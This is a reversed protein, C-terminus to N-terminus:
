FVFSCSPAVPWGFAASATALAGPRLETVRGALGLAALTQGGLYVAGLASVDLSLDADDHTRTVEPEAFATARVRYSGANAPRQEDTVHLVVDVDAQYRRSALAGAVDVLRVWVNDVRKTGAARPDVLLGLIADDPPLLLTEVKAMLDLDLLVSWLDHAAAADLTAVEGVHGDRRTRRM